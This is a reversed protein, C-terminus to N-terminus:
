SLVLDRHLSLHLCPGVSLHLPLKHAHLTIYLTRENSKLQAGHRYDTDSGTPQIQVEGIKKSFVFSSLVM